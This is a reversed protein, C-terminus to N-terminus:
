DSALLEPHRMLASRTRRIHLALVDSATVPDRQELAALLLRHESHIMWSTGLSLTVFARRYSQTTDWLREIMQRLQGATSGSYSTWHFERDLDLFTEVDHNAEIREQVERMHMLADPGLHPLSDRLLIPEIHERVEYSMELDRLSMSTVWAGSNSRLTVLGRNELIRLAERVPIRSSGLEEALEDQIIRAGPPLAGSLIRGALAEAVRHSAVPASRPVDRGDKRESIM